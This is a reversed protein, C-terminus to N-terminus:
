SQKRWNLALIFGSYITCAVIQPVTIQPLALLWLWFASGVTVMAFLAALAIVARASLAQLALFLMKTAHAQQQAAATSTKPAQPRPPADDVEREGVVELRSTM